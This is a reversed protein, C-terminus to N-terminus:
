WPANEKCTCRTEVVKREIASRLLRPLSFNDLHAPPLYDQAGRGVAQRALEEEHNVGLILIPIDQAVKAVKDFTEMGSSDPLRLDLLIASIGRSSLRELGESLQHVWELGFTGGSSTALAVRIKEATAPDNEILLITPKLNHTPIEPRTLGSLYM